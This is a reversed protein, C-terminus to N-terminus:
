AFVIVRERVLRWLKFSMDKEFCNGRTSNRRNGGAIEGVKLIGIINKRKKERIRKEQEIGKEKGHEPRSNIWVNMCKDM